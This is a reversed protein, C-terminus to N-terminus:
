IHCTAPATISCNLILNIRRNLIGNLTGAALYGAPRAQRM